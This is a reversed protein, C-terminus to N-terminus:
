SYYKPLILLSLVALIGIAMMFWMSKMIDVGAFLLITIIANGVSSGLINGFGWVFSNAHVVENDSALRSSYSMSMPFTTFSVFVFASYLLAAVYINRSLLFMLFFLVMLLSTTAFMSRNGYREILAGFVYQGAIAPLFTLSLFLGVMSPSASYVFYMYAGIFTVTGTQFAAKFFLSATLRYVAGNLKAKAIHAKAKSSKAYDSKAASIGNIKFLAFIAAAFAFFAFSLLSVGAMTGAIAILATAVAPMATRGVSGISGNIGMYRPADNKFERTILAGGLPHYFAQGTGLLIVGLAILSYILMSHIIFASGFALVSSAELAIGISMLLELNGSRDAHRGIAPSVFASLLQYLVAMAGLVPLSVGPVKIFYVMLLPYLLFTGDNAFHGLATAAFVNLRGHM